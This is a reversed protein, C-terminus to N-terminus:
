KFNKFKFFISGEGFEYRDVFPFGSAEFEAILSTESTYYACPHKKKDKEFIIIEFVYVFGDPKLIRKVDELMQKKKSFHHYSTNMLVHDFLQIPLSTASDSGIVLEFKNEISKKKIKAYQNITAKVTAKNLCEASIDELYFTLSDHYISAAAEFWGSKAGISAVLSGQKLSMFDFLPKLKKVEKASDFYKEKCDGHQANLSFIAITLYTIFCLLMKLMTMNKLLNDM